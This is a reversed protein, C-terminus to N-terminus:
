STPFYNEKNKDQERLAPLVSMRNSPLSTNEPRVTRRKGDLGPLTGYVASTFIKSESKPHPDRERAKKTGDDSLLLRDDTLLTYYSRVNSTPPIEWSVHMTFIVYPKTMLNLRLYM